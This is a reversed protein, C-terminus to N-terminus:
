RNRGRRTVCAAMALMLAAVAALLAVVPAHHGAGAGGGTVPLGTIAGETPSPTADAVSTGTPAASVMVTSAITTSATVTTTATIVADTPTPTGTAASGTPSVTATVGSDSPTLTATVSSGTPTLTPTVAAALWSVQVCNSTREGAALQFSVTSAISRTLAGVQGTGAVGRGLPRATGTCDGSPYWALRYSEGAGLNDATFRASSGGPLTQPDTQGNARLTIPGDPVVVTPSVTPSVTVTATTTPTVVAAAVQLPVCNSTWEGAEARFSIPGAEGALRDLGINGESDSEAGSTTAEGTCDSRGPYARITVAVSPPFGTGTIAFWQGSEVPGPSQSGNIAIAPDILYTVLHVQVCNSSVVGDPGLVVRVSFEDPLDDSLYAEFVGDSGISQGFDDPEFAGDCGLVAYGVSGTPLGTAILHIEGGDVLVPGTSGNVELVIDTDQHWLAVCNTSEEEGGTAALSVFRISLDPAFSLQASTDLTGAGDAIGSTLAYATGACTTSGVYVLGALSAGPTFGDVYLAVTQGSVFDVPGASGDVRLVAPVDQVTVQMCNGYRLTSGDTSRLGFWYTGPPRNLTTGVLSGPGGSVLNSLTGSCSETSEYISQTWTAGSPQDSLLVIPDGEKVFVSGTSGNALLTAADNMIEVNVCNSTAYAPMVTVEDVSDVVDIKKELWWVSLAQTAQISYTSGAGVVSNTATGNEPQMHDFGFYQAQGQCNRGQFLSFSNTTWWGNFRYFDPDPNSAQILSFGGGGMDLLDGVVLTQTGGYTGLVTGTQGDVTLQAGTSPAAGAMVADDREAATPTLSPSPTPSPEATASPVDTPADEKPPVGTPMAPPDTPVVTPLPPDTPAVTEPTPQAPPISPEVPPVSPEVPSETPEQPVATEAQAPVTEVTGEGSAVETADQALLVQPSCAMLLMAVIACAHRVTGRWGSRRYM